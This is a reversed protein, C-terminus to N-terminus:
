NKARILSLTLKLDPPKLIADVGNAVTVLVTDNATVNVKTILLADDFGPSATVTVVDGLRAGTLVFVLKVVENNQFILNGSGPYVVPIAPFVTAPSIAQYVAVPDTLGTATLLLSDIPLKRIQGASITVLSDHQSGIPLVWKQLQGQTMGLEVWIGNRRIYLHQGQTTSTNNLVYILMGDPPNIVLSTDTIRPLLLGKNTSELELIAAPNVTTVNNGIKVQAFLTNSCFLLLVIFLTFVYIKNIRRM